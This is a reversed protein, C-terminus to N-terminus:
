WPKLNAPRIAGVVKVVVQVGHYEKPLVNKQKTNTLYVVINPENDITDERRGVGVILNNGASTFIPRYEENFQTALKTTGELLKAKAKRIDEINEM